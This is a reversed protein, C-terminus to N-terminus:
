GHQRATNVPRLCPGHVRTDNKYVRLCPGDFDAPAITV